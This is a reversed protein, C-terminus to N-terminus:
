DLTLAAGLSHDLRTRPACGAVIVSSEVISGGGMVDMGAALVGPPAAAITAASSRKMRAVAGGGAAFVGALRSPHCAAASRSPAERSGHDDAPSALPHSSM